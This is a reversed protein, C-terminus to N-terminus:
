GIKLVGYRVQWTFDDDANVDRFAGRVRFSVDGTEPEYRAHLRCATGVRTATPWEVISAARRTCFPYM